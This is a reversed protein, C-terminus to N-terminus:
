LAAGFLETPMVSVPTVERSQVDPKNLVVADQGVVYLTLQRDTDELIVIRSNGDRSFGKARSEYDRNEAVWLRGRDDWCFVM